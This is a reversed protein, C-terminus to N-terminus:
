LFINIKMQDTVPPRRHAPAAPTVLIKADAASLPRVIEVKAVFVTLTTFPLEIIILANAGTSPM